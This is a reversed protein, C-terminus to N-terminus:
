FIKFIDKAFEKKLIEFVANGDFVGSGLVQNQYRRLMELAKRFCLDERRNLLEETRKKEWEERLLETHQEIVLVPERSTGIVEKILYRDSFKCGIYNDM